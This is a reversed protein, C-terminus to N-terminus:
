ESDHKCTWCDSSKTFESVSGCSCGTWTGRKAAAPKAASASAGIRGIWTKGDQWVIAAVSEVKVSGDKKSVVIASGISPASGQGRLGWSGDNLKSFSTM